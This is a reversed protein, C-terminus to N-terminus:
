FVRKYDFLASDALLRLTVGNAAYEFAGARCDAKTMEAMDFVYQKDNDASLDITGERMPDGYWTGAYKVPTGNDVIEVNYYQNNQFVPRVNLIETVEAVTENYMNMEDVLTRLMDFNFDNFLRAYNCIHPTQKADKLHEACYDQIFADDLTEYDIRYHVRGPRNILFESVNQQRNCTFIWLKRSNMMGDFLTLLTAQEDPGYVKEFEDFMVVCPQNISQIFQNFGDGCHPENVMITPMGLSQCSISLHKALLSKGSGKVGSLMVGLSTDRETFTKMIRQMYRSHKGYFREPLIFDDTKSLYYTGRIEKALYNGPPLADLFVGTTDVLRIDTGHQTYRTM